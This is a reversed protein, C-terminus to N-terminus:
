TPEMQAGLHRRRRLMHAAAVNASVAALPLSRDESMAAGHVEQAGAGGTSTLGCSQMRCRLLRVASLYLRLDNENELALKQLTAQTAGTYAYASANSRPRVHERAAREVALNGFFAPLVRALLRLSDELRELIGVWVYDQRLTALARRLASRRAAAPQPDAGACETRHGCFWRSLLGVKPTPTVNAYVDDLGYGPRCLPTSHALEWAESCFAQRTRCVCTRWFYFASLEMKIPDRLLNIYHVRLRPPSAPALLRLNLHLMHRDFITPQQQALAVIRAAFARQEAPTLTNNVYDSSKIFAFTREAAQRKIIVELSTSGCKPVRNFIVVPHLTPESALRETSHVPCAATCSGVDDGMDDKGKQWGADKHGISGEGEGSAGGEHERADASRSRGGDVEADDDQAGVEEAVVSASSFALWLVARRSEVATKEMSPPRVHLASDELQWTAGCCLISASNSLLPLTASCGIHAPELQLQPSPASIEDDGSPPPPPPLSGFAGGGHMRSLQRGSVWGQRNVHAVRGHPRHHHHAARPSATAARTSIEGWAPPMALLDHILHGEYTVLRALRVGCWAGTTRVSPEIFSLWISFPHNALHTVDAFFLEGNEFVGGAFERGTRRLEVLSRRQDGCLQIAAGLECSLNVSSVVLLMGHCSAACARKSRGDAPLCSGDRCATACVVDPSDRAVCVSSITPQPRRHTPLM